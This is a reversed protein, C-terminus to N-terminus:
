DEEEEGDANIAFTVYNKEITIFDINEWNGQLIEVGEIDFMSKVNEFVQNVKDASEGAVYITESCGDCLKGKEDYEIEDITISDCGIQISETFTKNSRDTDMTSTFIEEECIDRLQTITKELVESFDGDEPHRSVIVDIDMESVKLKEFSM